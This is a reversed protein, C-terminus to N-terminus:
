RLFFWYVLFVGVTALVFPHLLLGLVDPADEQQLHEIEAAISDINKFVREPTGEPFAGRIHRCHELAASASCLHEEGMAYDRISGLQRLAASWAGGKVHEHIDALLRDLKLPTIRSLSSM